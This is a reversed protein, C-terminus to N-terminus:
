LQLEALKLQARSASLQAREESSDLQLLVQGVAVSEGGNFNIESIKGDVETRLEVYQTAQVEAIVRMTKALSSPQVHLATVTESREPFSNAFAIAKSIQLYKLGGLLALM